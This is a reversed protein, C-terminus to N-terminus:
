TVTSHSENLFKPPDGNEKDVLVSIRTFVNM